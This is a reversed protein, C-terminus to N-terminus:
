LTRRILLWVVAALGRHGRNKYDDHQPDYANDHTVKARHEELRKKKLRKENLWKEEAEPNLWEILGPTRRLLRSCPAGSERWDNWRWDWKTHCVKCLYKWNEIVWTSYTHDRCALQLTVGRAGCSECVVDVERHRRWYEDPERWIIESRRYSKIDDGSWGPIAFDPGKQGGVM